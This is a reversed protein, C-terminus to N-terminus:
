FEFVQQYAKQRQRGDVDLSRAFVTRRIRRRNQTLLRARCTTSKPCQKDKQYLM